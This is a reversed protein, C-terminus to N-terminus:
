RNRLARKVESAVLAAVQQRSAQSSTDPVALNITVNIGGAAALQSQNYIQGNSDPVFVEPEHEGVMYGMGRTVPGGGARKGKLMGQIQMGTGFIAGLSGLSMLAGTGSSKPRGGAVSAIWNSVGARAQALVAEQAIQGFVQAFRRPLTNLADGLGKGFIDEVFGTMTREVGETASAIQGLVPRIKELGTRLRDAETAGQGLSEAIGVWHIQARENLGYSAFEGRLSMAADRASELRRRTQEQGQKKADNFIERWWAQYSTRLRDTQDAMEQQDKAHAASLIRMKEWVTLMKGREVLQAKVLALNSKEAGEVATLESLTSKMWDKAGARAEELYQKGDAFVTRWHEAFATLNARESSKFDVQRATEYLKHIQDKSFSGLEGYRMMKNLKGVEGKPEILAERMDLLMRKLNDSIDQAALRSKAASEEIVSVGKGFPNMPRFGGGDGSIEGGMPAPRGITPKVSPLLNKPKNSKQVFESWVRHIMPKLLNENILDQGILVDRSSGPTQGPRSRVNNTMLRKFVSGQPNKNGADSEAQLAALLATTARREKEDAFAGRFKSSDAMRQADFDIAKKAMYGAGFLGGGIVGGLGFLRAAGGALGAGTSAGAAGEQAVKALDAATKVATWATAVGSVTSALLGLAKLAPGIVIAFKTWQMLAERQEASLSQLWKTADRFAQSAEPMLEKALEKFSSGIESALNEFEGGTIRAQNAYEHSTRAFDGQAKATSKIILNYRAQVKEGETFQGAVAKFGMALAEAKVANESLLVGFQRLPETEGVLGSRLKEAATKIDTNHFSALDASLKTLALAMKASEKEALGSAQVISGFSSSYEYAARTSLGLARTANRAFDSVSTSATGFVVKIKNSAEALNSSADTAKKFFAIAPLTVGVTMANGASSLSTSAAKAGKAFNDAYKRGAKSGEAGAKNSSEELQREVNDFARAIGELLEKRLSNHYERGSDAGAKKSKRVAEDQASILPRVDGKIRVSLEYLDM